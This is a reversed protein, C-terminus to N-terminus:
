PGTAGGATGGGPWQLNFTLSGSGSGASDVVPPQEPAELPPAGIPPPPALSLAITGAPDAAANNAQVFSVGGETIIVPIGNNGSFIVRGEEVKLNITDFEFSTGRVSATANPSRVTFNTMQGAPPAVDVRIRGTDLNLSVNEANGM